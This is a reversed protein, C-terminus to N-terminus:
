RMPDRLHVKWSSQLLSCCVSRHCVELKSCQSCVKLVNGFEALGERGASHQAATSGPFSDAATDEAGSRRRKVGRLSLYVDHLDEFQSVKRKPRM